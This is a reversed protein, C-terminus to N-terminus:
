PRPMTATVGLERAVIETLRDAAASLDDNEVV